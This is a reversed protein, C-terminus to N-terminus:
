RGAAPGAAAHRRARPTSRAARDLVDGFHFRPECGPAPTAQGIGWDVPEIEKRSHWQNILKRDIMVGYLEGAMQAIVAATAPYGRLKLLAIEWREAMDEYTAECGSCTAHGRHPLGYLDAGCQDCPGVFIRVAPRDVARRANAIADTVEDHAQVADLGALQRLEDVHELLWQACLRVTELARGPLETSMAPRGDRDARAGPPIARAPRPPRAPLVLTLGRSDAVERVWVTLVNGLVWVADPVHEKWPVPTEGGRGASGIKDARALTLDLDVLLEPVTRLDRALAATCAGCLAADTERGCADCIVAKM